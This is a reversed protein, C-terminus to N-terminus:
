SNTGRLPKVLYIEKKTLEYLESFLEWQRTNDITSPFLSRKSTLIFLERLLEQEKKTDYTM